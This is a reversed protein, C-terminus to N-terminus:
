TKSLSDPSPVPSPVFMLPHPPISGVSMAKYWDQLHNNNSRNQTHLMKFYEPRVLDPISRFETGNPSTKKPPSCSSSSSPNVKDPKPSKSQVTVPSNRAPAINVPSSRASPGNNVPSIRCPANMVPSNRAGFNNANNPSKPSSKLKQNEGTPSKSSPSLDLATLLEQKPNNESCTQQTKINLTKTVPTKPFPAANIEILKPLTKTIKPPLSNPVNEPKKESTPSTKVGNEKVHDNTKKDKLMETIHEVTKGNPRFCVKKHSHSINQDSQEPKRKLLDKPDKKAINTDESNLSMLQISVDPEEVKRKKNELHQHSDHTMLSVSLMGDETEICRETESFSRKLDLKDNRTSNILSSTIGNSKLMINFSDQPKTSDNKACTDNTNPASVSNLKPSGSKRDNSDIQPKSNLKNMSLNNSYITRKPTPKSPMPINSSSMDFDYPDFAAKKTQNSEDHNKIDNIKRNLSNNSKKTLGNPMIKPSVNTIKPPVNTITDSILPMSKPSKPSLVPLPKKFPQQETPPPNEKPPCNRSVQLLTEAAHIELEELIRPNEIYEKMANVKRVEKGDGEGIETGFKNLYKASKLVKETRSLPKSHPNTRENLRNVKDCNKTDSATSTRVLSMQHIPQQMDPRPKPLLMSNTRYIISNQKIANNYASVATAVQSQHPSPTPVAVTTFLVPTQSPVPRTISPASLILHSATQSSCMNPRLPMSSRITLHTPRTMTTPVSLVQSKPVTFSTSSPSPKPLIRVCNSVPRSPSPTLNPTPPPPKSAIPITTLMGIDKLSSSSPTKFSQSTNSATKTEDRVMTSINDTLKQLAEIKNTEATPEAKNEKGCLKVPSEREVKVVPANLPKMVNSDEETKISIKNEVLNEKNKDDAINTIPKESDVSASPMNPKEVAEVKLKLPKPVPLTRKPANSKVSSVYIRFFFQMPENRNWPYIYAVDMLSYYDPLSERRYILEVKDNDGAGFKDRVFRKLLYLPMAAPCNLYSKIVSVPPTKEDVGSSSESSSPPPPPPTKSDSSKKRSLITAVSQNETSTSDWIEKEKESDCFALSLSIKEDPSYILRDVSLGRSEPHLDLDRDPMKNYHERRRKMESHFLGPVIKYIIDQLTKDPKLYMDPKSNNIQVKCRPCYDEQALHLIICSRCFSHLCEAISTADVIYGRCLVCLIYPNVDTLKVLPRQEEM